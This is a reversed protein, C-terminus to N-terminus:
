VVSINQLIGKAVAGIIMLPVIEIACLYLIFYLLSPIKNYFIRFGKIIFLIRSLIYATLGITVMMAATDPYIVALLAPVILLLSLLAQSANFGRIWQRTATMDVFAYGIVFYTATQAIYFSAAIGALSLMAMPSTRAIAIGGAAALMLIAQSFCMLIIILIYIRTESATHDDFNNNRQRVKLLDGPINSIVRRCSNINFVVLMILVLIPTILLSNDHLGSHREIGSIGNHWTDAPTSTVLAEAASYPADSEHTTAAFPNVSWAM